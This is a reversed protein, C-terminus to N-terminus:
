STSRRLLVGWYGQGEYTYGAFDMPEYGQEAAENIETTLTKAQSSDLVLYEYASVPRGV